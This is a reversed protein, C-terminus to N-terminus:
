SCVCRLKGTSTRHASWSGAYVHNCSWGAIMMARLVRRDLPDGRLNVIEVRPISRAAVPFMPDVVGLRAADERTAGAPVSTSKLLVLSRAELHAAIRAAITDSTADWSAPLPAAGRREIETLVNRPALIAVSAGDRAAALKDLRDVM